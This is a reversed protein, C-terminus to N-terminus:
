APSPSLESTCFACKTAEINVTSHCFPCDKTNPAAAVEEEKARDQLKKVYRVIMFLVFAVILFAIVGDIFVGYNMTVAGAEKAAALTIYPGAVDGDQLTVFRDSLSADGFILGIPPMLIDSVLSKVIVIFAAGLVFAVALDLVNGRTIFDKFAKLM